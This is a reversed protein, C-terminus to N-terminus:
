NNLQISYKQWSEDQYIPMGSEYFFWQMDISDRVIYSEWTIRDLLVFVGKWSPLNNVSLLQTDSASIYGLRHDPTIDIYDSFRMNREWKGSIDREYLWSPSQVKWIGEQFTIYKPIGYQLPFDVESVFDISLIQTLASKQLIIFQSSNDIGIDKVDGSLEMIPRYVDSVLFGLSSWSEKQSVVLKREWISTLFTYLPSINQTINMSSAEIPLTTIDKLIRYEVKKEEDSALVLESEQLINGTSSIIIKYLAPPLPWLTCSTICEENYSLFTDAL